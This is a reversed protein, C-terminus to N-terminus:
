SIALLGALGRYCREVVEDLPAQWYARNFLEISLHGRYGMRRLLGLRARLPLIGESQPSAGDSLARARPRPALKQLGRRSRKFV